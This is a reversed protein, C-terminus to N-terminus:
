NSIKMSWIIFDFYSTKFKPPQYVDLTADSFELIYLSPILEIPSVMKSNCGFFQLNKWKKLFPLYQYNKPEKEFVTLRISSIGEGYIKSNKSAVRSAYWGGFNM